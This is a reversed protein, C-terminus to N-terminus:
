ATPSQVDSCAQPGCDYQGLAREVSVKQAANSALRIRRAPHRVLDLIEGIWREPNLPLLLGDHGHAVIEDFASGQSYLGVAAAATIDFFKTYSRAANFASPLLPALGIHRGPQQIFARYGAWDMPPVIRTRPLGRYGKAVRQDAIVELAIRADTDLLERMLQQVWAHERQHSASGHYFLWIRPETSRAETLAPRRALARARSVWSPTPADPRPTEPQLPAARISEARHPAGAMRERQAPQPDQPELPRPRILRPRYRAYKRQLAVSGVWLEAQGQRLRRQLWGLRRFSLWFLKWRYRWPLGGWALPDLLDDDIFLVIRHLRLDPQSLARLWASPLYRVLIVEASELAQLAPVEDFGCRRASARQAAPFSGVTSAVMPMLFLDTTASPREEVLYISHGM